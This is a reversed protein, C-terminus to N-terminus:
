VCTVDKCAPKWVVHFAASRFPVSRSGRARFPVSRRVRCIALFLHIFYSRHFSSSQFYSVWISWTHFIHIGVNVRFIVWYTPLYVMCPAYPFGMFWRMKEDEIMRLETSVPFNFSGLSGLTGRGPCMLWRYPIIWSSTRRCHRVPWWCRSTCPPSGPVPRPSTAWIAQSFDADAPHEWPINKATQQRLFPTQVHLQNKEITNRPIDITIENGLDAMKKPPQISRDGFRITSTVTQSSNQAPILYAGWVCLLTPKRPISWLPTHHNYGNM